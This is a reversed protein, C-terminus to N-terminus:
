MRMLSARVREAQHALMPAISSCGKRWRAGVSSWGVATAKSRSGPRPRPGPRGAGLHGEQYPVDQILQAELGEGLNGAGLAKLEVHGQVGLDGIGGGAGEGLGHRLEELLAMGVQDDALHGLDAACPAHRMSQLWFEGDFVVTADIRHASLPLRGEDGHRHGPVFQPAAGPAALGPEKIEARVCGSSAAGSARRGRRM